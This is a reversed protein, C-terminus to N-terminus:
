HLERQCVIALGDLHASRREASETPNKLFERGREVPVEVESADAEKIAVLTQAEEIIANALLVNGDTDTRSSRSREGKERRKKREKEEICFLLIGLLM